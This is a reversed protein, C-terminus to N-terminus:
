ETERQKTRKKLFNGYLKQNKKSSKRIGKKIWPNFQRQPKLKVKIKSFCEKYLSLFTELFKSYADNVNQLIKINNWDINRLKQKLKNISLDSINCKFIHQESNDADIKSKTAFIIPFHDAIYTKVVAAKIEINDMITNTFVHDIATVTHRTVRTPRNITLIM